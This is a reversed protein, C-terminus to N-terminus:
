AARACEAIRSLEGQIRAVVEALPLSKYWVVPTGTSEYEVGLWSWGCVVIDVAPFLNREWLIEVPPSPVHAAGSKGYLPHAKYLLVVDPLAAALATLLAREDDL